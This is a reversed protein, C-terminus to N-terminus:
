LHVMLLVLKNIYVFQYYQNEVNYYSNFFSADMYKKVANKLHQCLKILRFSSIRGSCQTDQIPFQFVIQYHLIRIYAMDINVFTLIHVHNDHNDNVM